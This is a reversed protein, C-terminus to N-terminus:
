NKFRLAQSRSKVNLDESYGNHLSSIFLYKDEDFLIIFEGFKYKKSKTFGKYTKRQVISVNELDESNKFLKSKFYKELEKKHFDGFSDQLHDPVLAFLYPQYEEFRVCVSEGRKDVGFAYIQYRNDPIESNSDEEDFADWSLIQFSLNDESTSMQKRTFSEM